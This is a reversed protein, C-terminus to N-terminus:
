EREAVVNGDGADAVEPSGSKYVITTDDDGINVADVSDVNV